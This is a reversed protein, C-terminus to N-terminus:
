VGLEKFAAGFLPRKVNSNQKKWGWGGIIAERNVM